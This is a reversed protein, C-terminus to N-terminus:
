ASGAAKSILANLSPELLGSGAAIFLIGGWM